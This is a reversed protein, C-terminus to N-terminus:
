LRGQRRALELQKACTAMEKPIRIYEEELSKLMIQGVLELEEYKAWFTPEDVDHLAARLAKFLECCGESEIDCDVAELFAELAKVDKNM